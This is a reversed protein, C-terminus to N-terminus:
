GSRRGNRVGADVREVVGRSRSRNWGTRSPPPNMLPASDIVGGPRIAPFAAQAWRLVQVAPSNLLLKALPHRWVIQDVLDNPRYPLDAIGDGDLDFATHDSWYNGRGGLSWDLHRTGVYKVQTRNDIFANGYIRNRESGATFHVGIECDEFRNGFIRNINANYIFLCKEAGRVFNDRIVSHNAYNLFIGRDRDGDSVNDFVTLHHSYMLAFGVHNGRSVNGSVESHNTYMYHVAFRLDHFRNNRFVNERSTTVFIGDRGWRIENDEVVSGPTNWLQVGNGRENVHLDRRGSIRNRVVRADRPGKLYIGILNDELRNSEIRARDGAATVFIGADETELRLGSGTVTLGRVLVDPADVTITRGAGGGDVVSAESGTLVLTRDIVVPGQYRGPVLRLVDGPAAEEVAQQITGVGPEVVLTAAGTRGATM